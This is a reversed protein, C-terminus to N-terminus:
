LGSDPLQHLDVLALALKPKGVIQQAWGGTLTGVGVEVLKPLLRGANGVGGACRQRQIEEGFLSEGVKVTEEGDIEAVVTKPAAPVIQPSGLFVSVSLYQVVVSSLDPQQVLSFELLHLELIQAGAEM